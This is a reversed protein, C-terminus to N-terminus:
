RAMNLPIISCLFIIKKIREGGWYMTRRKPTKRVIFHCLLAHLSGVRVGVTPEAVEIVLRVTFRKEEKAAGLLSSKSFLPSAVILQESETSKMAGEITLEAELGQSPALLSYTQGQSLDSIGPVLRVIRESIGKFDTLNCREWNVYITRVDTQNRVTISLTKLQESKYCDKFKFGIAIAEQLNQRDLQESLAASDFDVSIFEDLDLWMQYFVRAVIIWYVVFILLGFM